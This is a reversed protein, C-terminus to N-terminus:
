GAFKRTAEAGIEVGHETDVAGGAGEGVHGAIQRLPLPVADRLRARRCGSWRRTKQSARRKRTTSSPAAGASRIKPPRQEVRISRGRRVM